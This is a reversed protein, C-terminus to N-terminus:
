RPQWARGLDTLYGEGHRPAPLGNARAYAIAERRMLSGIGRRRYEPLVGLRRVRGVPRGPGGDTVHWLYHGVPREQYVAWVHVLGPTRIFHVTVGDLDDPM